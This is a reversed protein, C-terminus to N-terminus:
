FFKKMLMTGIALMESAKLFLVAEAMADYKTNRSFRKLRSTM